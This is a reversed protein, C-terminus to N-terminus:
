SSCRPFDCLKQCNKVRSDGCLDLDRIRDFGASAYNLKDVVVMNWDTNRHLHQIFHHGLFGCGGTILVTTNM